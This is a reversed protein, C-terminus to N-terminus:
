PSTTLPARAHELGDRTKFKSQGREKLLWAPELLRMVRPVTTIGRQESGHFDSSLLAQRQVPPLPSSPPVASLPLAPLAPLATTSATFNTLTPPAPVWLNLVLFHGESLASQACASTM